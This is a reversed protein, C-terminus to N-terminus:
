STLFPSLLDQLTATGLSLLQVYLPGVIIQASHYSM